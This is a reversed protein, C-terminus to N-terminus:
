NKANREVENLVNNINQFHKAVKKLEVYGDQVEKRLNNFMNKKRRHFVFYVVLEVIAFIVAGIICSALDFNIM